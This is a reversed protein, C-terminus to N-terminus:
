SVRRLIRSSAGQISRLLGWASMAVIALFWAITVFEMLIRARLGYTALYQRLGSYLQLDIREIRDVVVVASFALLLAYGLSKLIGATIPFGNVRSKRDIVIGVCFWFFGVSLISAAQFVHQDPDYYSTGHPVLIGPGCLLLAILRAPPNYAYDIELAKPYAKFFWDEYRRQQESAVLLLCLALAVQVIPLRYRWFKTKTIAYSNM